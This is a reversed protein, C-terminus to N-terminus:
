RWRVGIHNPYYNKEGIIHINKDKEYYWTQTVTGIAAISKRGRRAIVIDGIKINHCFNDLMNFGKLNGYQRFFAEKFQAEDYASIDGLERWGVSIIQNDLDFQWVKEWIDKQTYDFPSIVWYREM